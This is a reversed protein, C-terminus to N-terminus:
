NNFYYKAIVWFINASYQPFAYVGNLYATSTNLPSPPALYQYNDYQDDNWDYKQYTYGGSFGWNKNLRYDARLNFSTQKYTDYNNIPLPVGVEATIDANGDNRGYLLSGTLKLQETIPYTLAAGLLWSDDKNTSNWNYANPFPAQNPDFCAPGTATAGAGGCAGANIYRHRANLEVKEYDAFV